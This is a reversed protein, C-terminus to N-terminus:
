HNFLFEKTNIVAWLIDEYAQKDNKVKDIYARAANMEVSDPRRSFAQLYIQEVKQEHSLKKDAALQGARGNGNTLKNQVDSSNLLHLSQALNAEGSRECECASAGDPRGFVQLFYSNVSTDPLQVARTGAPLGNFKTTALTVSDIADLLVEANLRKPYYRSFSQKDGANYDNPEASLQYTTSTCITRILDKMDFGTAIFHQALADLLQPNSPPNTVRMDDEPDVIGRGFFHKWYRNVLAKSFFPNDPRAMWDALAQRPDQDPTLNLPESGLGTAKVSQGTKPNQATAEGRQYFIREEGPQIGPKRGVRSFFAKFGAYDNQSWKEFPHHHCQACQIRLGLFLQATDELEQQADKVERYWVVPPNESIEGSAAIIERVFQDYPKNQYLSQRIWSHFLYTGRAHTEQRRKNRLVASWKNAFYDAYATGALLRDVLKERKDPDKDELFQQTEELTPLRGSIDTSVRRIYTSDDCIKSPPMGLAVLQAFVHEDIFNKAPPLKDVVAGLPVIARFVAVHGQYRAMVAVAGALENTKVLGRPTVSAMETDNPDFQTMSTVDRTSGDSYHAICMLQQEGNRGLTRETPYVEIRSVVPDDPKGYPMGQEIWRRLVRYPASDVEIRTGGGHPVIGAAKMLLLSRDPAAPFLRRGKGEKVLHEFDEKPEFGLLSLRFGNQGSAKGHCGGSNCSFKTFVPVVENPFNVPVDQTLQTVTVRTSATQERPGRVAITASGEAVPTVLGTPDIEVVGAPEATYSVHHTLDRLIRSYHGTVVLQQRADRGALKLGAPTAVGYDVTIKALDSPDPLPARKEATAATPEEAAALTSASLLLCALAATWPALRRM